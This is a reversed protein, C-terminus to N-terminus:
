CGNCVQSNKSREHEVVELLRDQSEKIYAADNISEITNDIVILGCGTCYTESRNLDTEFENSYCEPCLLYGNFKLLINTM